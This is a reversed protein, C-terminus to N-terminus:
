SLDWDLKASKQLNDKAYLYQLNTYHQLKILDDETIASANPIVHDIHYKRNPFYKGGYNKKATEILYAHVTAFDCTPKSVNCRTCTKLNSM